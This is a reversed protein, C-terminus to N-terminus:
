NVNEQCRSRKVWQNKTTQGHYRIQNTSKPILVNQLVRCNNAYEANPLVKYEVNTIFYSMFILVLCM